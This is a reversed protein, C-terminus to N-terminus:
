KEVNLFSQWRQFLQVTARVDRLCYDAIEQYRGERFLPGVDQGSVGESKPSRIGFSKCYFDLSFKRFAGYYSLQELLDCHEGASYRYTMLNRSPKVGLIASRLMVFPCDFSRGNFTIFQGYRAITKWFEQLMDAETGPVFEVLGDPSVSSRGNPDQYFVKGQQSDPNVMAIAVIQATFPALSLKMVADAREEDTKAFRMLYEQQSEDFTELPYALTEIDFVVRNM